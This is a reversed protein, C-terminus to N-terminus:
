QVASKLGEGPRFKVAKSAARQVTEGTRPNRATGAPRDVAVFNGFGVIRVDAGEKLAATVCDTFADLAKGAAKKDMDAKEAIATILEAKTM